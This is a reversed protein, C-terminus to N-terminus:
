ARRLRNFIERNAAEVLEPKKLTAFYIHLFKCPGRRKQCEAFARMVAREAQSAVGRHIRDTIQCRRSNSLEFGALQNSRCFAEEQAIRDGIFNCFEKNECQDYKPLGGTKQVGCTAHEICNRYTSEYQKKEFRGLDPIGLEQPSNERWAMGRASGCACLGLAVALILSTVYYLEIIIRKNAHNKKM